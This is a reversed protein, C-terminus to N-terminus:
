ELKSPFNIRHLSTPALFVFVGSGFDPPTEARRMFGRACM